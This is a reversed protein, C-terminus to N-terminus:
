NSKNTDLPALVFRDRESAGWSMEANLNDAIHRVSVHSLILNQQIHEDTLLQRRFRVELVGSESFRRRSHLHTILAGNDDTLRASVVLVGPEVIDVQLPIVLDEADMSLQGVSSVIAKPTFLEFAATVTGPLREPSKLTAVLRLAQPWQPEPEATIVGMLQDPGSAFEPTIDAVFNGQATTLAVSLQAGAPLSGEVLELVVRAELLQDRRMRAKPVQVTLRAKVDDYVIDSSESILEPSRVGAWEAWDSGPLSGSATPPLNRLASLAGDADDASSPKFVQLSLAIILGPLLLITGLVWPNSANKM